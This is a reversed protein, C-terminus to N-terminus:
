IINGTSFGGSTAACSAPRSIPVTPPATTHLHARDGATRASGPVAAALLCLFGQRPRHPAEEVDSLGGVSRQQRALHQDADSFGLVSSGRHKDHHLEMIEDSIYPERAADVHLLEPVAYDTM